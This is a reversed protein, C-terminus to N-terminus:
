AAKARSSREAQPVRQEVVFRRPRWVYSLAAGVVAGAVLGLTNPVVAALQPVVTVICLGLLAGFIAGGLMEPVPWGDWAMAIERRMAERSDMITDSGGMKM